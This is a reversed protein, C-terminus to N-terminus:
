SVIFTLHGLGYDQMSLQVDLRHNSTKVLLKNINSNPKRMLNSSRLLLHEKEQTNILITELTRFVSQCNDIIVKPLAKEALSIYVEEESIKGLLAGLICVANIDAIAIAHVSQKDKSGYLGLLYPYLKSKLIIAQAPQIHIPKKALGTLTRKLMDIDPLLIHNAQNGETKNHHEDLLKEGEISGQIIPLVAEHLTKSDFPKQVIFQAGANLAEQLKHESSETTVFGIKIDLMERNLATLLEFGTMEPMHWDSIVLDPEWVRVIDLAEMGNSAKKLEIKDYGLQEIGRRVITQMARSDDVILIKM